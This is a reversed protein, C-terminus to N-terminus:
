RQCRSCYFSSRQGITRQRVPAACTRCPEGTRGYVGLTLQFYGPTGDSRLFDRLTSGGSDIARQLVAKIREALLDYRARSIRGAARAPHIGAEYLSESAYINGVGVVVSADMVFNKVATRRGRALRHLHEGNFADVLPEPGLDRLLPHTAPDDVWLLCGFRRPDNYRLIASGCRIDVHDHLRLPVEGAGAPLVRVSGSMGLHMLLTGNPLHFLLYKARRSVRQVTQGRARTTLDAPVPWRLRSERVVIEDIVHGTVHPAVGRRTTEVEPLEPM